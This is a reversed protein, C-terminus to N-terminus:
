LAPEPVTCPTSVMPDCYVDVGSYAGGAPDEIYWQPYDKPVGALATVFAKVIIPTTVNGKRAAAITTTPAPADTSADKAADHSVDAAADSPTTVDTKTDAQGSDQPSTGSSSTGCAIAGAAALAIFLISRITM